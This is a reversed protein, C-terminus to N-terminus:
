RFDRNQFIGIAALLFVSCWLAAYATIRALEMASVPQLYTITNKLNLRELDPLAWYLWASTRRIAPNNSLAGFTRIDRALHGIVFLGGTFFASLGSSTWTSCFTAFSTIVCLELVLTYLPQLMTAEIPSRYSLLTLLFGAFMLGATALLTLLLGLNKGLIFAARSVPKSIVTYITKREIERNVMGIGLFIALGVSFLNITGFGVDRLIRDMAVFTVETFLVSLLIFVVGFFLISYFVRNRRAERFTNFAIPWIAHM